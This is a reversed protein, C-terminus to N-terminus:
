IGRSLSARTARAKKWIGGSRLAEEWFAEFEKMLGVPPATKGGIECM